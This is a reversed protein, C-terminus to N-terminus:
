AVFNVLRGPVVVAKRPPKGGLENAVKEDALALRELEARDADTPVVMRSRVKGNVQIAIEVMDKVLASADWDPWPVLHLDPELGLQEWLECAVHPTFPFLLRVATAVAFKALRDGARGKDSRYDQIGNVLEMIAAIATNFRMREGIDRTVRFVTEHVLARLKRADAPSASEDVWAQGPDEHGHKGGDAIEGALRVVRTLFRYSGDVGRESWELDKEPPAAFLSFLRATDAGYRGVLEEPDVVNGKSKSM